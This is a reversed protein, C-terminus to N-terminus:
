DSVYFPRHPTCAGVGTGRNINRISTPATSYALGWCWTWKIPTPWVTCGSVAQARAQPWRSRRRRLFAVMVEAVSREDAGGLDYTPQAAQLGIFRLPSHSEDKDAPITHLVTNREAMTTQVVPTVLRRGYFVSVSVFILNVHSATPRTRRADNVNTQMPMCPSCLSPPPLPASRHATASASPQTNSAQAHLLLWFVLWFAGALLSSANEKLDGTNRLRFASLPFHSVTDSVVATGARSTAALFVWIRRRRVHALTRPNSRSFRLALRLLARGGLLLGSGLLPRNGLLLVVLRVLRGLYSLHERDHM